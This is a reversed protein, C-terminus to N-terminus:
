ECAECHKTHIIRTATAALANNFGQRTRAVDFPDGFDLKFGPALAYRIM